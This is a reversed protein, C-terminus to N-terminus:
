HCKNNNQNLVFYCCNSNSESSIQKKRIRSLTEPTMGLMSALYNLPVQNFIEKKYNLLHNYREESSLSLFSFVRDELVLFCKAIFHKELQPWTPLLENLKNYNTRTITYFQCDSIAQINWRANTNFVLSSLDTIFEGPSSIWQTIEKGNEYKFVRVHGSIIFSLSDCKTDEKCVFENKSLHTVQFLKEVEQLDDIGINFYTNIYTQLENM